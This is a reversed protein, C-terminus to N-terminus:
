IYVVKNACPLLCTSVVTFTPRCFLLWCCFFISFSFSINGVIYLKNVYRLLHLLTVINMASTELNKLKKEVHRETILFLLLEPM